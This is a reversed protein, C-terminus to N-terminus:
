DKHEKKKAWPGYHEFVYELGTEVPHDVCMPLFPIISLGIVTPGWKKFRNLKNCVKKGVDVSTHIVAFPVIVSAIAQFVSREVVLQTMSMPEHTKEHVYGRKKLKYAEYGVDVFCYSIAIAYTGTVIRASVIPRFAEGFDSTFALYRFARAFVASYGAYRLTSNLHKEMEEKDNDDLIGDKNNDFKEIIKILSPDKLSNAKFDEALKHIEEKSM